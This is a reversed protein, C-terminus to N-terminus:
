IGDGYRFAFPRKIYLPAFKYDIPIKVMLDDLQPARPTPMRSTAVELVEENFLGCIARDSSSAGAGKLESLKMLELTGSADSTWTNNEEVYSWIGRNVYTNSLPRRRLIKYQTPPLLLLVRGTLATGVVEEDDQLDDILKGVWELIAAATAADSTSDWTKSSATSIGVANSGTTAQNILGRAWDSGENAIGQFWAREMHKNAGRMAARMLLPNLSTGGYAAAELEHLSYKVGVGAYRLNYSPSERKVSVYQISSGAEDIFTGEGALDYVQYQVTKAGFPINSKVPFIRMWKSTRYLQYEAEMAVHTQTDTMFGLVADERTHFNNNSRSWGSFDFPAGVFDVRERIQSEMAEVGLEDHVKALHGYDLPSSRGFLNPVGPKVIGAPTSIIKSM